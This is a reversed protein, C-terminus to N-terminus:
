KGLHELKEVIVDGCAARRFRSQFSSELDTAVILSTSQEIPCSVANTLAERRQQQPKVGNWPGKQAPQPTTPKQFVPAGCGSDRKGHPQAASSTHRLQRWCAPVRRDIKGAESSISIHLHVPPHM